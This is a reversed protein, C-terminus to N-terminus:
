HMRAVILANSLSNLLFSYMNDFFKYMAYNHNQMHTSIISSVCLSSIIFVITLLLQSAVTDARLASSIKDFLQPFVM